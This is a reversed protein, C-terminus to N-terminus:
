FYNLSLKKQLKILYMTITAEQRSVIGDGDRDAEAFIKAVNDIPKGIIEEAADMCNQTAIELITLVEENGDSNCLRLLEGAM